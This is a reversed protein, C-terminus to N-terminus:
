QSLSFFPLFTEHDVPNSPCALRLEATLKSLVVSFLLDIIEVEQDVFHQHLVLLNQPTKQTSPLLGCRSSCVKACFTEVIPPTASFEFPARSQSAFRSSCSGQSSIM